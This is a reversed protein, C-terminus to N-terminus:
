PRPVALGGVARYARMELDNIEDIARQVAAGDAETVPTGDLRELLLKGRLGLRRLLRLAALPPTVAHDSLHPYDSRDRGHTASAALSAGPTEVKAM